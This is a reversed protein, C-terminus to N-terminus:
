VGSKRDRDIVFNLAQGAEDLPGASLGTAWPNVTPAGADELVTQDAGKLYSPAVDVTTVRRTFTQTGSSDVGFNATGGNDHIHLTITASGNANTATNYSM